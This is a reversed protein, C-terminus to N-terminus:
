QDIICTIKKIIDRRKKEKNPPLYLVTFISHIGWGNIFHVVLFRCVENKNVNVSLVRRVHKQPIYIAVGSPCHKIHEPKKSAIFYSNSAINNKIVRVREASLRTDVFAFIDPCESLLNGSIKYKSGKHSTCGNINIVKVGYTSNRTCIPHAGSGKSAPSFYEKCM